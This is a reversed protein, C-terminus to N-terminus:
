SPRPQLSYRLSVAVLAPIVFLLTWPRVLSPEAVISVLPFWVFFYVLVNRRGLAYPLSWMAYWSATYAGLMPMLWTAGRLRRAGAVAGVIAAVAALAAVVHLASVLGSSAAYAVLARAYAAGGGFWSLAASAAIVAACAAYRRAPPLMAELVPLGVLAYPLKILAAVVILGCAAIPARRILAAAAVVLAIPVIDNHADVVFQLQLGPNLGALAVIRLPLGYARLLALFAVFAALSLARFAMLKLALTPALAEVMRAVILWLPGYTSAPVPTGWRANIFALDDPFPVSPPAYAGAGLLGNGVYAYVDANLFVPASWSIALMAAGTFIVPAGIQARHLGILAVMQVAALVLLSATVADGHLPVPPVLGVPWPRKEAAALVVFLQATYTVFLTGCWIWAHWGPLRVRWRALRGRFDGAALILAALYYVSFIVTDSPVGCAGHRECPTM